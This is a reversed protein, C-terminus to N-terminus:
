SFLKPATKTYVIIATVILLVQAINLAFKFGLTLDLVGGFTFTTPDFGFNRGYGLWALGETGIVTNGLYHGLIVAIALLFAMYLKKM